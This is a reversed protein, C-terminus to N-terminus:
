ALPGWQAHNDSAAAHYGAHARDAVATLVALAERLEASAQTWGRHAVEHAEAARGAWTMALRDAAEQLRSTALELRESFARTDAVHAALRDLDVCYRVRSM